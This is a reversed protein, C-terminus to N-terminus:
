KEVIRIGSILHNTPILPHTFGELISMAHLYPDPSDLLFSKRCLFDVGSFLDFELYFM